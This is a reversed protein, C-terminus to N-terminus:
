KQEGEKLEKLTTDPEHYRRYYHTLTAHTFFWNVWPIRLFVYVLPYILLLLLLGYASDLLWRPFMNLSSLDVRGLTLWVVLTTLPVSAALAYFGIALLHSAEVAQTPCYAMCRMCSECRTTWYPRRQRDPGRMKLADRPCNQACLGCGTCRESAFFLKGLFIRGIVLYALSIPLLLLGLLLNRFGTLRQRGSLLVRMFDDTKAKARQIIAKVAHEGLGPHLALWNSPMDVGLTGQIHYGKLALVLACLYIATGEMGPTFVSGIKMGARTAVIVAHTQERRPLQLVFRLMAWPATFGHTPMVLGLLAKHGADVEEDPHALDIPLVSVEAQTNRLADAIWTAVRYSNGTGSFFYVMGEKYPM